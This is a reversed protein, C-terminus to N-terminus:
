PSRLSRWTSVCEKGVRSEESRSGPDFKEFIVDGRRYARLESDLIFERMQLPSLGELISVNARLHELWEAVGRKEPLGAFKAALIPEDAPKLDRNGNIYEVVDYGQNM